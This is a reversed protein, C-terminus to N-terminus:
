VYVAMCGCRERICFKIYFCLDIFRFHVIGNLSYIFLYIYICICYIHTAPLQESRSKRELLRQNVFRLDGFM